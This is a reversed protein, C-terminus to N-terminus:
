SRQLCHVSFLLLLGALMGLVLGIAVAWTLGSVVVTSSAWSEHSLTCPPVCVVKNSQKDEFRDIQTIYSNQCVETLVTKNWVWRDVKNKIVANTAGGPSHFGILCMSWGSSKLYNYYCVLAVIVDNFCFSFYILYTFLSFFKVSYKKFIITFLSTWLFSAFQKLHKLCV